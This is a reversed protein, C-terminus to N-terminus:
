RFLNELGFSGSPSLRKLFIRPGYRAKLADDFADEAVADVLGIEVATKAAHVSGDFLGDGAAARPGNLLWRWPPLSSLGRPSLAVWDHADARSGLNAAARRDLRGGRSAAVVRVFEGHLEELVRRERAVAARTQPLYPDVGAKAAGATMVRREVGARRLQRAYGFSRTIVGVSGVLACPAAVIADAACAAFYGGSTCMEDVFCLVEPPEAVSRRGVFRAVRRLLRKSRTAHDARARAKLAAIKAYLLASESATGGPSTVRLVVPCGRHNFARELSRECRAVSLVGDGACEPPPTDPGWCWFRADALASRDDAIVGRM